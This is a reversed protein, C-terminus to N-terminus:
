AVARALAAAFVLVSVSAVPGVMRDFPWRLTRSLWTAESPYLGHRRLLGLIYVLGVLNSLVGLLLFLGQYSALVAAAGAIGVLPAVDAVHHACCAVMSLTSAGGSAAVGHAHVEGKRTAGRAYAFLGIQLAFGLVLPVMWYWLRVLEDLAHEASNAVTLIGFYIALLFGGALVAWTVAGPRLGLHTDRDIRGGDVSAECTSTASM